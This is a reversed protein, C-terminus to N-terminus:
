GFQCDRDPTQPLGHAVEGYVPLGVSNGTTASKQRRLNKVSYGRRKLALDIGELV